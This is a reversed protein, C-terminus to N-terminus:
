RGPIKPQPPRQGVELRRFRLILGHKAEEVANVGRSTLRLHAGLDPRHRGGESLPPEFEPRRGRGLNVGESGGQLGPAVRRGRVVQRGVLYDRFPEPVAETRRKKPREFVGDPRALAPLSSRALREGQGHFREM